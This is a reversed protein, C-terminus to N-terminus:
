LIWAITDSNYGLPAIRQHGDDESWYDNHFNAIRRFTAMILHVALHEGDSKTQLVAKFGGNTM